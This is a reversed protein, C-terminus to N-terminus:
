PTGANGRRQSGRWRRYEPLSIVGVLIVAWLVTAGGLIWWGPRNYVSPSVTPPSFVYGAPVVRYSIFAVEKASDLHERLEGGPYYSQLIPVLEPHGFLIFLTPQDLRPPDSQLQAPKLDAGPVNRNFFRFAYERWPWDDSVLRVQYGGPLSNIYRAIRIRPGANDQVHAIYRLWNLTGVWVLAVALLGIAMWKGPRGLPLLLDMIKAAALAAVLMVAPLTIALHPSYPPDSTLVGGLILTLAIWAVLAFYRL